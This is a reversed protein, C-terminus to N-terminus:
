KKEGGSSSSTSSSSSSSSDSGSSPAAPKDAVPKDAPKDSSSSTSSGEGGGESKRASAGAGGGKGYDSVYWGSGKFQVAPASLLKKLPGGCRDCLTLPPENMGQILEVTRGCSECLYERLPM